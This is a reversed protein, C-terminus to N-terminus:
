GSVAGLRRVLAERRARAVSLETGDVLRVAYDGGPATLVSAVRDLRVIASRHIRCFASPDLRQELDALAERMPLAEGGVHVVAYSDAAQVYDVAEVPVIRVEGRLTLALRSAFAAGPAAPTLRSALHVGLEGLRRLHVAERVRPLMAAVREPTFPAVLYAAAGADLAARAHDDSEAAVVLAPRAVPDAFPGDRLESLLAADVCSPEVVFVDPRVARALRIATAVRGAEGATEVGVAALADVLEARVGKRALM